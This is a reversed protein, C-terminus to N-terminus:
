TANKDNAIMQSIVYKESQITQELTRKSEDLIRIQVSLESMETKIEEMRLEKAAIGRLAIAIERALVDIDNQKM